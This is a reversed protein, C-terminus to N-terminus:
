AGDAAGRRDRMAQLRELQWALHQPLDEGSPGDETPDPPLLLRSKLYALWAAM